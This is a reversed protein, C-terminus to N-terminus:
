TLELQFQGRAWELEKDATADSLTVLSSTAFLIDGAFWRQPSFSTGMQLGTWTLLPTRSVSSWSGGNRRAQFTGGGWRAQVLHWEGTNAAIVIDGSYNSGNYCGIRFGVTSFAIWLDGAGEGFVMPNASNGPAANDASAASAKCLVTLAGTSSTLYGTDSTFLRRNTGCSAPTFGNVATGVTAANSAAALNKGGSTGASASGVWPSGTYSPLWLGSLTEQSHSWVSSGSGSVPIVGAWILSTTLCSSIM